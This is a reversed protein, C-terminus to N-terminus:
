CTETGGFQRHLLMEGARLRTLRMMADGVNTKFAETPTGHETLRCVSVDFHGGEAATNVRFLSLDGRRSFVILVLREAFLDPEVGIIQAGSFIEQMLTNWNCDEYESFKCLDDFIGAAEDDSLTDCVYLMAGMLLQFKEEQRM